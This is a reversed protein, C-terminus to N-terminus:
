FPTTALEGTSIYAKIGSPNTKSARSYWGTDDKKVWQPQFSIEAWGNGLDKTFYAYPNDLFESTLIRKLGYKYSGKANKELSPFSYLSASSKSKDIYIKDGSKLKSVLPATALIYDNGYQQYAKRIYKNDYAGTADLKQGQYTFEPHNKNMWARFKNGESNTTFPTAPLVEQTPQPTTAPPPTSPPTTTNLPNGDDDLNPDIRQGTKPDINKRGGSLDTTESKNRTSLWWILGGTVLVASAIGVWMLTKNKKMNNKKNTSKVTLRVSLM